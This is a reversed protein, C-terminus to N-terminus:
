IKLIHDTRLMNLMATKTLEVKTENSEFDKFKLTMYEFAYLNVPIFMHDAQFCSM